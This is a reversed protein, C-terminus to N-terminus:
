LAPYFYLSITRFKRYHKKMMTTFVRDPTSIFGKGLTSYSDGIIVDGM